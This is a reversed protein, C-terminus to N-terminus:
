VTITNLFYTRMKGKGKIEIEGREEFQFGFNENTIRLEYNTIKEKFRETVQIKGPEGYEEMRSATNVADGWLDYIFKHEGIVGAVVSGCDIGCRFNLLTQNGTDFNKLTHMAELAFRAAMEAHDERIEPVGAAAMYCDGITKIKELGYKKSILDLKTYINNLIEIIQRPSSIEPRASHFGTEIMDETNQTLISNSLKTFDVMDIFVVSAEDFHDAIFKQKRKLKSAIKKPLINLLLKESKGRERWILVSFFILIAIGLIFVINIIRQKQEAVNQLHMQKLIQKDYEFKAELKGIEMIRSKKMISDNLISSLRNYHLAKAPNKKKEYYDEYTSYIQNLLRIDGNKKETEMAKNLYDVAKEINIGTNIWIHAIEVLNFASANEFGFEENIALAHKYYDLAKSDNEKKHYIMAIDSLINSLIYHAKIKDAYKYAKEFYILASDLNGEELYIKAINVLNNSLNEINGIKNNIAMAKFVYNRAEKFNSLIKNIIGMNVYCDAKSQEDNLKEAFKLAKSYNEYAKYYNSKKLYTNGIYIYTSTMRNTDDNSFYIDFLKWYVELANDYKGMQYYIFGINTYINVLISNDKIERFIKLSQYMCDLANNYEYQDLYFDYGLNYYCIAEEKKLKNKQALSIAKRFFNLSSKKDAEILEKGIENMTLIRAKVSVAKNLLDQLSDIKKNDSLLNIRCSFFMLVFLILIRMCDGKYFIKLLFLYLIQIKLLYIM